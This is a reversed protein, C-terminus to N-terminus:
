IETAVEILLIKGVTNGLVKRGIQRADRIHEHDRGIRGEGIPVFRNVRFLDAAFQTDMIHKSATDFSGAILDADVRLQDICFM